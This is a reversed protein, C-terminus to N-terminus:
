IDTITAEADFATPAALGYQLNTRDFIEVFQDTVLTGLVWTESEGKTSPVILAECWGNGLERSWVTSPVTLRKLNPFNFMLNGAQHVDVCDFVNDRIKPTGILDYIRQSYNGPAVIHNIGNEFSVIADLSQVLANGNFKVTSLKTKWFISQNAPIEDECVLPLYSIKGRIFDPDIGLVLESAADNDRRRLNTRYPKPGRSFPPDRTYQRKWYSDLDSAGLRSIAEILSGEALGLRGHTPDATFGDIVCASGFVFDDLEVTGGTTGAFCIDDSYLDTIVFGQDFEVVEKKNLDKSSSSISPDYFTDVGPCKASTCRVGPVWTFDSGSDIVLPLTQVVEGSGFKIDVTYLGTDNDRNLPIRILDNARRVFSLSGPAAAAFQACTLALIAPVFKSLSLM